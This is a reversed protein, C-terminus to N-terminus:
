CGGGGGDAETVMPRWHSGDPWPQGVGGRLPLKVPSTPAQVCKIFNACLPASLSAGTDSGLRGHELWEHGSPERAFTM